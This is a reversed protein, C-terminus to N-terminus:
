INKGVGWQQLYVELAHFFCPCFLFFLPVVSCFSECRMESLGLPLFKEQFVCVSSRDNERGEVWFTKETGM